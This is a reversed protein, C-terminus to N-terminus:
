FPRANAEGPGNYKDSDIPFNHSRQSELYLAEQADMEEQLLKGDKTTTAGLLQNLVELTKNMISLQDGAIRATTKAAQTKDTLAAANQIEKSAVENESKANQVFQVVKAYSEELSKRRAESWLAFKSGHGLGITNPHQINRTLNEGIKNSNNGIDNALRNIREQNALIQNIDPTVVELPNEELDKIMMETQIILNQVEEIQKAYQAAQKLLSNSQTEYLQIAADAAEGTSIATCLGNLDTGTGLYYSDPMGSTCVALAKASMLLMVIIVIIKNM